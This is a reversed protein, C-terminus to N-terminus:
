RSCPLAGLTGQVHMWLRGSRLRQKTDLGDRVAIISYVLDTAGMFQRYMFKVMGVSAATRFRVVRM